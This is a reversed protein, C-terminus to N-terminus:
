ETGIETTYSSDSLNPDELFSVGSAGVFARPTLGSFTRFESIFHSQDFYGCIQGTEALPRAPSARLLNCATLFRSLRVFEKPTTGLAAKCRRQLSREGIGLESCLDPIKLRGSHRWVSRVLPAVTEKQHRHLQRLLFEEVLAVRAVDCQAELLRDELDRVQPGWLYEIDAPQDAIESLPIGIFHFAGWPQFRVSILGFDQNPHIEIFSRTQSVAVSRPLVEYGKGSYSCMFPSRYHFVIELLGDPLIREAPGFATFDDGELIWILRVYPKLEDRPTLVHSRM